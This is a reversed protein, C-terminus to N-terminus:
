ANDITSQRNDINSKRNDTTSKRHEIPMGTEDELKLWNKGRKENSLIIEFSGDEEFIM